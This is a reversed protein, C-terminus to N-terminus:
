FKYSLGIVWYSQLKNNINSFTPYPDTSTANYNDISYKLAEQKNNRLGFDFGVGINKWITYGFSNNWTWNSLNNSKYSSFLSLNTKFSIEKIQRTYDVLIKTGYSSQFVAENRSFILNYNLPHVVVVLDQIPTWTAGIGADLYGPNNFNNLVTTRYEGLGSLAFTESLKMGYLSTVNFVDTAERWRKNDNPKDKDDFKVWSLNLNGANRWFFSETDLNAFANVTIGLKGSRNNPSKQSYWNNFDTVSGGITGFAGKKWGPFADIKSQTANVRNQITKLSDKQISLTNKLEELTQAQASIIGIFFAFLLTKKM